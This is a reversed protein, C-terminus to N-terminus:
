REEDVDPMDLRLYLEIWRMPEDATVAAPVIDFRPQFKM